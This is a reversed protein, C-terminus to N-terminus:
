AEHACIELNIYSKISPFPARGPKPEGGSRAKPHHGKVGLKSRSAKIMYILHFCSFAHTKFM